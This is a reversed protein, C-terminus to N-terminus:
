NGLTDATPGDKRQRQAVWLVFQPHLEFEERMVSWERRFVPANLMREMDPEWIRWISSGIYGYYRLAHFEFILYLAEHVSRREEATLERSTIARRSLYAEAPLSRRLDYIRDTYTLFIQAGLRRNNARLATVIAIASTDVSGLTVFRLVLELM